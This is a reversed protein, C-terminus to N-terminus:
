LKEKQEHEYGLRLHVECVSQVIGDLGDDLENVLAAQAIHSNLLEDERLIVEDKVRFAVDLEMQMYAYKYTTFACMM